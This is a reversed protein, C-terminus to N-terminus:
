RAPLASRRRDSVTSSWRGGASTRRGRAGRLGGQVARDGRAVPGVHRVGRLRAGPLEPNGGVQASLQRPRRGRGGTMGGYPEIVRAGCQLLMLTAAPTGDALRAMLLRARGGRDFARFVDDYASRARHIFGAREATEVYIRYFDDLGAAGVDEVTVGERRAKNVYQRWKSRLDSWLEEEARGLDVLRTRPTQVGASETWGAAALEGVLPHSTEVEPDILVHVIRQERAVRRVEVTLAAVAARDFAGVPGRPAYGVRWPSPRLDRVLLQM